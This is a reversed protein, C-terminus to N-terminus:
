FKKRRPWDGKTSKHKREKAPFPRPNQQHSKSKSYPKKEERRHPNFSPRPVELVQQVVPPAPRSRHYATGPKSLAQAQLSREKKEAAKRVEETPVVEKQFLPIKRLDPLLDKVISSKVEEFANERRKAEVNAWLFALNDAQHSLSRIGRQMFSSLNQLNQPQLNPLFLPLSALLREMWSNSALALAVARVIGGSEPSSFSLPKKELFGLQAGLFILLIGPISLNRLGAMQHVM